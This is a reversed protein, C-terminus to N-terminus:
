GKKKTKCSGRSVELVAAGQFKGNRLDELAQDAKELPYVTVKTRIPYKSILEFFDRSDKRTLNAVSQISREGWLDRYPFSPIDSMHIGGCICRGGKKLAKLAVPVLNGVPAFIIAADLLTPPSANSDGAWVAGLQRAFEQGKKDGERTFAYVEKGELIALQTLLHASAGFGYLGLTKKPAAKRYARYGILGACLLPAIQPDSLESVLPIAFDANCVTYEAFGGDIQYGTFRADDCLNEEGRLCYECHGCTKGLWPVGVRDGKEFGKVNKGMEEVVGVIEHGLILPLKPNPLEADKLHLDTRCVGCVKVKILLEDDSPKPKLVDESVLTKKQEKLLMALMAM